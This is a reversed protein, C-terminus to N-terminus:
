DRLSLLYALLDAMEGDSLRGSFSPMDSTTGIEFDRIDDKAVTVLQDQSDILQVTATDENLRRGRITRGDRTLIRVPRNIALMSKNPELLSTVIASPKRLMGIDSLDPAARSGNGHVQHCAPCGGKGDYISKGRAADGVRFSTAALDFGSRIYAVLVDLEHPEFAFLPMGAAPVGTRIINRLDGDTTARRFQGRPLNVGAINDGNPGHCLACQATYLKYGAQIDAASYQQDAAQASTIAVSCFVFCVKASRAFIGYCRALKNPVNPSHM